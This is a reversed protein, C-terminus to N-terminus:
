AAAWACVGCGAARVTVLASARREAAASRSVPAAGFSSPTSSSSAHVCAFGMLSKTCRVGLGPWGPVSRVSARM